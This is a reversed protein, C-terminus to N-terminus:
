VNVCCVGDLGRGRGMQLRSVADKAAGIDVYALSAAGVIM